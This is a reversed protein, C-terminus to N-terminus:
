AGEARIAMYFYKIGAGNVDTTSSLPRFGNALPNIAGVPQENATSNLLLGSSWSSPTATHRALDVVNWNSGGVNAARYMVFQPKWGLDITPGVAQGNGIYSGCQIVSNPTPDHAFLYARYFLGSKNATSALPQPAMRNVNFQTDPFSLGMTDSVFTLDTMNDLQGHHWGSADRFGVYWPDTNNMCKILVFGPESGLNHGISTYSQGDGVYDVIDLFGPSKCFSWSMHSQGSYNTNATWLYDLTFGDSHVGTLITQNDTISGPTSTTLYNAFASGSDILYFHGGGDRRKLLIIGGKGSLDTDTTIKKSTGNGVYPDGSYLTSVDLGVGRAAGLLLKRDLLSV